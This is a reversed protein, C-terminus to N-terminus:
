RSLVAEIVTVHGAQLNHSMNILKQRATPGMLLRVGMPPLGHKQVRQVARGFWEASVRTCDEWYVKKLELSRLQQELEEVAMLHSISADEAWPVPYVVDGGAGRFVDHFALRGGPNLVRVMEGYFDSKAAINMQVHETWIVDFSHDEFPLDTGSGQRFETRDALHLRDSLLSAVQCYEETLDVGTVHCDYEVALHRSTGGLGCGVDLVHMGPELGVHKALAVTAERGRIHMADVPALDEPTLANTDKGMDRLTRLITEGLDGMAYHEIIHSDGTTM